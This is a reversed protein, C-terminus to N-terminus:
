QQECDVYRTLNLSARHVQEWAGGAAPAQPQIQMLALVEDYRLTLHWPKRPVLGVHHQEQRARSLLRGRVRVLPGFSLVLTVAPRAPPELQECLVWEIAHALQGAEGWHLAIRQDLHPLRM